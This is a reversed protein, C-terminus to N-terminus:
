RFEIVADRRLDRLYRRARVNVREENLQAYVDDFTPQSPDVEDRGCIVLIRVGEEISGFPQTAQGVQMPLMMQQLAAPLERLKVQDSQVLEGHFDGAIKDAGGCGGVTRAAAAFRAVIPEAAAHSIGKPFSVSVQKLSLVANRPDATLVKRTDQVAIISFGGQVPIPNSVQGPGM